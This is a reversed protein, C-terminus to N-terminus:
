PLPQYLPNADLRAEINAIVDRYADSDTDGYTQRFSADDFFEPLDTFDPLLADEATAGALLEQVRAAQAADGAALAAFRIGARDAALDVFSFGSGGLRSDDLEKLLGLYDALASDASLSLAASGLFHEAIDYREHLMYRVGRPRPQASVEDSLLRAADVDFQYLTLAIIAAHNEEAANGSRSRAFQLLEPLISMLSARRQSQRSALTAVQATYVQLRAALAPDVLLDRGTSSLLALSEAELAYDLRLSGDLFAYSRVTQLLQRYEPLERSLLNHGFELVPNALEPPVALQGLSLQEIRPLPQAEQLTLSLNLWAGPMGEPLAASLQLQMRGSTLDFRSAGGQWRDLLMDSLLALDAENLELTTDQGTDLKDRLFQRARRLEEPGIQENDVLRPTSDFASWSLWAAALLVVLATTLLFRM